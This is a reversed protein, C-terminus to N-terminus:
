RTKRRDKLSDVPYELASPEAQQWISQRLRIVARPDIRDARGGCTVAGRVGIWDPGIRLAASLTEHRISGALVLRIGRRRVWERIAQLRDREILDFISGSSKSFTDVLLYRSGSNVALRAIEEVAPAAAAQHDAYAAPVATVTTPIEALARHWHGEWDTEGALGAFGLKVLTAMELHVRLRQPDFEALEGLAVSLPLRGALLERFAIVTSAAVPALPGKAPAKLDVIDVAGLLETTWETPDQFSVLLGPPSRDALSTAGTASAALPECPSQSLDM